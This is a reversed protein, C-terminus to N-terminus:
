VFRPQPRPPMLRQFLFPGLCAEPDEKGERSAPCLGQSEQRSGVVRPGEPVGSCGGVDSIRFGLGM